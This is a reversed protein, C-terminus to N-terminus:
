KDGQLEMEKREEVEELFWHLISSMCCYRKKVFFSSFVEGVPFVTINITTADSVAFRGGDCNNEDEAYSDDETTGEGESAYYTCAVKPKKKKNGLM